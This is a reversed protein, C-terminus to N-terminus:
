NEKEKKFYVPIQCWNWVKGWSFRSPASRLPFYQTSMRPMSWSPCQLPLKVVSFPPSVFTLATFLAVRYVHLLFSSVYHKAAKKLAYMLGRPAAQKYPWPLLLPTNKCAASSGSFGRSAEWWEAAKLLSSHWATVRSCDKRYMVGCFSNRLSAPPSYCPM